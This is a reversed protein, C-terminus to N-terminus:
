LQVHTSQVLRATFQESGSALIPFCVYLICSCSLYCCDEGTTLTNSETPIDIPTSTGASSEMLSLSTSMIKTEIALTSITEETGTALLEETTPVLDDSDEFGASAYIGGPLSTRLSELMITLKATRPPGVLTFSQVSTVSVESPSVPVSNSINTVETTTAMIASSFTDSLVLPVRMEQTKLPQATLMSVSDSDVSTTFESPELSMSFATDSPFASSVRKQVGLTSAITEPLPVHSSFQGETFVDPQETFFPIPVSSSVTSPNLELPATFSDIADPKLLESTNINMTHIVSELETSSPLLENESSDIDRVSSSEQASKFLDSESTEMSSPTTSTHQTFSPTTVTSQTNMTAILSDNFQVTITGTTAASSYSGISVDSDTGIDSFSPLALPLSDSEFLSQITLSVGPLVTENLSTHTTSADEYSPLREIPDQSSSKQLSSSPSILTSIESTTKMSAEPLFDSSTNTSSMEVSSIMPANTTTMTIEPFLELSETSPEIVLSPLSEGSSFESFSVPVDTLVGESTSFVNETQGTTAIYQNESTYEQSINVFYFMKQQSSPFISEIMSSTRTDITSSTPVTKSSTVLVPSSTSIHFEHLSSAWVSESTSSSRESASSSSPILTMFVASTEMSNKLFATPHVSIGSASPLIAPTPIPTRMAQRKQRRIKKIPEPPQSEIVQWGIINFGVEKRIRGTKINHEIVQIFDQLDPFRVGCGLFWGVELGSRFTFNTDGPGAAVVHKDLLRAVAASQRTSMTIGSASHSVFHAFKSILKVRREVDLENLSTDLVLVARFVNEDWECRQELQQNSSLSKFDSQDYRIAGNNSSWMLEEDKPPQVQIIFHTSAIYQQGKGNRQIATVEIVVTGEDFASPM